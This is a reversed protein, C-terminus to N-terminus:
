LTIHCPGLARSPKGRGLTGTPESALGSCLPQLLPAPPRQGHPKAPQGM